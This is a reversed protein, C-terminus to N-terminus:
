VQFTRLLNHWIWWQPLAEQHIIGRDPQYIPPRRTDQICEPHLHQTPIFVWTHIVEIVQDKCLDKYYVSRNTYDWTFSVIDSNYQFEFVMQESLGKLPCKSSQNIPPKTTDATNWGTLSSLPCLLIFHAHKCPDIFNQTSNKM